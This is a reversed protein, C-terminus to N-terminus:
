ARLGARRQGEVVSEGDRWEVRAHWFIHIGKAKARATFCPPCLCGPGVRRGLPGEGPDDQAMVELWLDDDAHWWSDTHPGVLLGCDDCVEGNSWYAARGKIAAVATRLQEIAFERKGLLRELAAIRQRATRQPGDRLAQVANLQVRQQKIRHELRHAYAEWTEGDRKALATAASDGHAM